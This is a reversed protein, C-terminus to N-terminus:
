NAHTSISFPQEKVVALATAMFNKLKNLLVTAGGMKFQDRLLWTAEASYYTAVELSKVGPKVFISLQRNADYAIAMRRGSSLFPKLGQNLKMKSSFSLAHKTAQCNSNLSM